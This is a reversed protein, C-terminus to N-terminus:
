EDEDGGGALSAELRVRELHDIAAALEASAGTLMERLRKVEAELAEIRDAAADAQAVTLFTMYQEPDRGVMEAGSRLKKVFDNMKTRRPCGSGLTLPLTAFTLYIQREASLLSHIYTQWFNKPPKLV